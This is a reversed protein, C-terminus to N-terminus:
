LVLVVFGRLEHEKGSEAERFFLRYPYVGQGVIDKGAIKNPRGDWGVNLDRSEFIMAGLRNFIRLLYDDESIGIGKPGFEDNINDGNPTFANPIYFSFDDDVYIQKDIMVTCGHITQVEFDIPYLGSVSPLVLDVEHRNNFTAIVDRGNIDYITWKWGSIFGQSHDTLKLYTNTTSLEEPFCSFDATLGPHALITTFSTDKECGNESVLTLKPFFLGDTKYEHAVFDSCDSIVNTSDGFDWFCSESNLSNNQFVIPLPACGQNTDISVIPVPGPFFYITHTDVATSNCVDTLTVIYDFSGPYTGQPVTSIASSNSGTVNWQYSYSTSDGGSPSAIAFAIDGSCLSDTGSVSVSVDPHVYVEVTRVLSPCTDNDYAIVSYQTTTSPSVQLNQITDQNNWVYFFPGGVGGQAFPLLFTIDNACITDGSVMLEVSDPAFLILTDIAVCGDNDTVTIINIDGSLQVALANTEGSSWAYNYPTSGGNVVVVAQGDNSAFCKPDTANAINLQPPPISTVTVSVNSDCGSADTVTLNYTGPGLGTVFSNSAGSSWVYTYPQAGGSVIISAIGNNQNCNAANSADFIKITDPAILSDSIVLQCNSQETITVEFKGGCLNSLDETTAGNSWNFTYPSFGNFPTLDITGNCIDFCTPDTGFITANLSSQLLQVSDKAICGNNDSVTVAFHGTNNTTAVQNTAGNSWLYSTFGIGADLTTSQNPCIVTDGTINLVISTSTRLSDIYNLNQANNPIGPTEGAGAAAQSFNTVTNYSGNNFFYFQGSGTTSSILMNNPGGTIDGYSVGHFLAGAPDRTQAADGANRLGLYLYSSPQNYVCGLYSTSGPNSNPTIDCRELNGHNAPMIYVLDANSDDPDDAINIAINKDSENYILILSGVPVNAWVPLNALRIHGDAIGVGPTPTGGPAFDGNNDDIIWGRLDVKSCPPGIVLLEYYEQAGATGNSIENIIIGQGITTFPILIILAIIINRLM